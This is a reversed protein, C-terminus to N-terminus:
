KRARDLVADSLKSILAPSVDAYFMEKFTAVVDRTTIGKAYM